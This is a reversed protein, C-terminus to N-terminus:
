TDATPILANRSHERKEKTKNFRLELPPLWWEDQTPGDGLHGAV